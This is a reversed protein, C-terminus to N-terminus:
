LLNLVKYTGGDKISVNHFDERERHSSRELWGALRTIENLALRLPGFFPLDSLVQGIYTLLQLLRFIIISNM